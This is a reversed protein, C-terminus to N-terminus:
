REEILDARHMARIYSALHESTVQRVSEGGRVVRRYWAGTLEVSQRYSLSPEWGLEILAKDCNLKLLHAERFDSVGSLDIAEDPTGHGWIASLDRLVQLVTRNQESRPGFNYSQGHQAPSAMLSAALTLYGSLPELVHQWPRTANPSRISVARGQQWARVTDPVLRDVAWDGGGIVNGARASAIRVRASGGAFFSTVYANFVVEAGAKSASYIDHGGLRDTERYGWVWEVNHYCKDSTIIVASCEHELGRLAELLNATGLVNTSITELPDAYSRSVIAQAALHFVVDPRWSQLAAALHAADRIDGIVHDVDGSLGALDFLSPETPVGISYGRVVAGLQKLWAVLWAGKFGTHGTIFVRKGAFCESFNM